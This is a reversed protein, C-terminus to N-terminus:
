LIEWRYFYHVGVRTVKYMGRDKIWSPSVYNTHYHTSGETIDVLPYEGMYARIVLHSIEQAIFFADEDRMADSKGDCYWSFQCRHRIPYFTRQDDALDKHQRTKWSERTPGQYVVGCITNPYRPDDVRNMVVMTVAYMGAYGDSRAEHYANQVLCEIEGKDVRNFFNDAEYIYDEATVIRFDPHVGTTDAKVASPLPTTTYFIATMVGLALVSTFLGSIFNAIKIM